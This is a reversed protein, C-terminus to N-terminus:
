DPVSGQLLTLLQFHSSAKDDYRASVKSDRCRTCAVNRRIRDEQSPLANYPLRAPPHVPDLPVPRPPPPPLITSAPPHYVPYLPHQSPPAPPPPPASFPTPRTRPWDISFPSRPPSRSRSKRKM